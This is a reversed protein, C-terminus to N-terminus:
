RVAAPLLVLVACRASGHSRQQYFAASLMSGTCWPPDQLLRQEAAETKHDGRAHVQM